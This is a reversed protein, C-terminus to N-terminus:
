VAVLSGRHSFPMFPTHELLFFSVVTVAPLSRCLSGYSLPCLAALQFVEQLTYSGLPHLNSDQLIWYVDKWPPLSLM